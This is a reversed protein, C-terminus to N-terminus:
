SSDLLIKNKPILSFITENNLFMNYLIHNRLKLNQLKLTNNSSNDFFNKFKVNFFKKDNKLRLNKFYNLYMYKYKLNLVNNIRM